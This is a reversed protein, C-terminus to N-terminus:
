KTEPAPDYHYKKLVAQGEKSAVMKIFESALAANKAAKTSGISYTTHVNDAAPIPITLFHAADQDAVFAIAANAGNKGSKLAEVVGTGSTEEDVVNARFKTAFDAGNTAESKKIVQRAYNGVASDQTGIVLKVGPNALDKLANIKAPNSKPVLITESNSLIPTQGVIADKVKEFNPNGMLVIDIPQGDDVAAQIKQGGLYEATFEVNPHTKQFDTMLEKFARTANSAVRAVMVVKDAAQAPVSVASTLAIIASLGLIFSRAKKM